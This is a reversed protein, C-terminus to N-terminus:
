LRVWKGRRISPVLDLLTQLTRDWKSSFGLLSLPLNKVRRRWPTTHRTLPSPCRSLRSTSSRRMTTRSCQNTARDTGLFAKSCVMGGQPPPPPGGGGPMLSPEDGPFPPTQTGDSRADYFVDPRAPTECPVEHSFGGKKADGGYSSQDNILNSFFIDEYTKLGPRKPAPLDLPQQGIARLVEDYDFNKRLGMPGYDRDM